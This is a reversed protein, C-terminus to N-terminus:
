EKRNKPDKHDECYKVRKDGTVENDCGDFACPREPVPEPEPDESKVPETRMTGDVLVEEHWPAPKEEKPAAMHGMEVLRADTLDPHEIRVCGLHHQPAERGCLSCESM